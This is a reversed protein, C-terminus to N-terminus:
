VIFVQYGKHLVEVDFISLIADIAIRPKEREPADYQWEYDDFIVLGSALPYSYVFDTLVDSAKHSGDIYVLDYTGELTKLIEKSDGEYITVREKYDAINDEFRQRLNGVDDHEVSGKFTDIVTVDAETNELLWKTARGEFCGIELVRKPNDVYKEWVPIHMTFWDSTFM